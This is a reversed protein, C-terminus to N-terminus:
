KLTTLLEDQSDSRTALDILDSANFEGFSKPTSLIMVQPNYSQGHMTFKNRQLQSVVIKFFVQQDPAILPNKAINLSFRFARPREM